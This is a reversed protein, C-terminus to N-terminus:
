EDHAVEARLKRFVCSENAVHPCGSMTVGYIAAEVRNRLGLKILIKEIHRKVTAPSIGLDMAIEKNTKARAVLRLVRAEAPSVAFPNPKAADM